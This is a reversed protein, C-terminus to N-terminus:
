KVLVAKQVCRFDGAKMSVVYLGAPINSADWTFNFSGSSLAGEQVTEILRGMGDFISVSVYGPEPLGYSFKAVSNFPNPYVESLFYDDPVIVGEKEVRDPHVVRMEIPVIVNEGLCNHSFEIEGNYVDIPLIGASLTITVDESGGPEIEGSLPELELWSANISVQWVDIRDGGDEEPTNAITMMVVSFPDYDTSIFSGEPRGGPEPELEVVAAVTDVEINIKSVVQRGQGPSHFVYLPCGDPDDAWFALGFVNFNHRDVWTMREGDLNYASINESITGSIWLYNNETDFTIANNPYFPGEFSTIVEGETTFGYVTREGSGWLLNGDWALDRMGQRMIGGQEFTDVLCGNQDLVYITANDDNTGSVYFRDGTYAVGWIEADDVTDGVAISTRLEWPDAFQEGLIRKEASWETPGTGENVVTLPVEQTTELPVDIILADQAVAFEPHPLRFAVLLTDERGLELDEITFDTYGYLSATANFRGTWPRDIVWYGEQDTEATQNNSTTVIAGELPNDDDLDLVFGHLLASQSFYPYAGMDARSGDPDPPSEPDGTNICPSDEALHFDAENPDIFEPDAEINHIGYEVWGNNNLAISGEGEQIDCYDIDMTCLEYSSSFYIMSRVDGNDWLISNVLTANSATGQEDHASIYIGGGRQCINRTMTVSNLTADAAWVIQMGGGVNSASNDHISVHDLVASGRLVRVGAGNSAECQYIEVHSIEMQNTDQCYIGGGNAAQSRRVVLHDLTPSSNQWCHVAGGFTTGGAAYGSGNQLTFGTLRADPSEGGHFHLVPGNDTGDIITSDIYAENNTTLYLSGVTIIRRGYDLNEEYVGPQVLVTDGRGSNNIAGQITENDDPVNIIDAQSNSFFCTVILITIVASTVHKFM